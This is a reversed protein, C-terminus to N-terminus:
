RLFMAEIETYFITTTGEFGSDTGLLLWVVGDQDTTVRFAPLSLNSLNKLEYSFDGSDCDKSNAFDGLVQADTGGDAQGGKDVNMVWFTEDPAEPVRTPEVAIAGGKIFVSDGPSGGIGFCGRPVNTAIEAQLELQYSTDPDLGEIRRKLFMFLADSHNNGSLMLAGDATNLPQPLFAHGSDLEFFEDFARQEAESAGRPYDAFGAEWGELDGDFTFHFVTSELPDSGDGGCGALAFAAGVIASRAFHLPPAPLM